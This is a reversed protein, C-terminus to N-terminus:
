HSVQPVTVSKARRWMSPKNKLDVIAPVKKNNYYLVATRIQKFIYSLKFQMLLFISIHEFFKRCKLTEFFFM